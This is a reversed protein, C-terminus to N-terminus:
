HLGLLFVSRLVPDADLNPTLSYNLSSVFALFDYLVM